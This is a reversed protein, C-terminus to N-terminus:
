ILTMKSLIFPLDFIAILFGNKDTLLKKKALKPNNCLAKLEDTKIIYFADSGELVFAYYDATSISIGSPVSCGDRSKAMEVVLTGNTFDRDKDYRSNYKVEYKMVTGTVATTSIDYGPFYGLCQMSETRCTYQIRLYNEFLEEAKAGITYDRQYEKNTSAM